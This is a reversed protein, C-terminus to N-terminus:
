PPVTIEFTYRIDVEGRVFVLSSPRYPQRRTQPRSGNAFALSARVARCRVELRAVGISQRLVDGSRAIM